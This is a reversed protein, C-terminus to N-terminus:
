SARVAQYLAAHSKWRLGAIAEGFEPSGIAARFGEESAWNTTNVIHFDVGHLSQHLVTDIFAPSTKLYDNAKEWAAIFEDEDDTPVEFINIM